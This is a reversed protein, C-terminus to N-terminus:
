RLLNGEMAQFFRKTGKKFSQFTSIRGSKWAEFALSAHGTQAEFAMAISPLEFGVQFVVALRIIKSIYAPAAVSRQVKLAHPMHGYATLCPGSAYDFAAFHQMLVIFPENTKCKFAGIGIHLTLPCLVIVDGGIPTYCVQHGEGCRRM